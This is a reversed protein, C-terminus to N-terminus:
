VWNDNTSGTQGSEGLMLNVIRAMDEPSSFTIEIKGHKQTGKINIKTEFHNELNQM